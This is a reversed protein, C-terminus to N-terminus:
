CTEFVAARNARRDRGRPEDPRHLRAGSVGRERSYRPGGQRDLSGPSRRHIRRRRAAREAASRENVLRASIPYSGRRDRPRSGDGLFHGPAAGCRPDEVEIPRRSPQGRMMRKADHLSADSNASRIADHISLPGSAADHDAQASGARWRSEGSGSRAMRRPDRRRRWAPRRTPNRAAGQGRGARSCSGRCSRGTRPRRFPRRSPGSPVPKPASAAKTTANPM